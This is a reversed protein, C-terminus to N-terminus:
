DNTEGKLTATPVTIFNGHTHSSKLMEDKCIRETAKDERLSSLPTPAQRKPAAEKCDSLDAEPMGDAILLLAKINGSLTSPDSEKADLMSLSYLKKVDFEKKEQM